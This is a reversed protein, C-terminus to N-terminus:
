AERKRCSSRPPFRIGVREAGPHGEPGQALLCSQQKQLLLRKLLIDLIPARPHSGYACCFSIVPRWRLQKVVRLLRMAASYRQEGVSSRTLTVCERLPKARM